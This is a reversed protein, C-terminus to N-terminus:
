TAGREAEQQTIYDMLLVDDDDHEIPITIRPQPKNSNRLYGDILRQAAERAQQHAILDSRLFRLGYNRPMVEGGRSGVEAEVM